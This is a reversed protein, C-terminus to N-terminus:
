RPLDPREGRARAPARLQGRSSHGGFLLRGEALYEGGELREELGWLTFKLKELADSVQEESFGRERGVSSVFVQPYFDDAQDM